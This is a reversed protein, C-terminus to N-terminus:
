QLKAKVIAFEESTLQINFAVYSLYSGNSIGICSSCNLCNSCISCNSCDSCDSCISCNLCNSCNYNKRKASCNVRPMACLEEVTKSLLEEKTM